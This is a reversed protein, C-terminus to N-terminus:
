QKIVLVNFKEGVPMPIIGSNEIYIYWANVSWWVGVANNGLYSSQWCHTVILIDTASMGTYSLKTHNGTINGASTTHVFAAPNTGSVKIPGAVELANGSTSKAYVGRGLAGDAEGFVGTGGTGSNYGVVGSLSGGTQGYIGNGTSSTGEVGAGSTSNGYVGYGSASNNGYVGYGSSSNSAGYVGNGGTKDSQGYVGCWGNSTYGQVGNGSTSTAYVGFGSTSVGYVGYYGIGYVGSGNSKDSAGYVGYDGGQTYGKVGYGSTSWGDLGNGSIGIGYVGDGTGDNEGYVGAGDGVNTGYVGFGHLPLSSGYVGIYGSGYVGTGSGTNTVGIITNSSSGNLLLPINIKAGTVSLDALKATNVVGAAIAPNPYTGTLDGGAPGGPPLSVGPALKAQTVAQDAIQTTGVGGNAISLTVDGTTGGGTLGTGANVATITGGGGGPTASITISNAGTTISVNTGANLMIDDKLTNISKVVQGNIISRTMLSYASSTLEIRPALESGSQVTIGLWYPKDFPITLPSVSGLNVNFIGKTINVSQLEQWLAAGSTAVDYLKFTLNYNGDAVINGSGDTLVGQYSITNPPQAEIKISVLLLCLSLLAAYVFIRGKRM